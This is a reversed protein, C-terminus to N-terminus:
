NAAKADAYPLTITFETRGPVSECELKGKHQDIITQAIALGLGNGKEKTTVMPYFVTEMIEPEIGPGDDIISIRCALRCRVGHINEKFVIRTKFTICGGKDSLAECANKAINLIVQQMQSPDAFIEPLSPDYDTKIVVGSSTALTVLKRVSELTEHINIKQYVTPQQPGLLRDVLGKLRDAQKIIIDTYEQMEPPLDQKLLQAAGRIGGLPNKIEHALNRILGRSATQQAHQYVEDFIKKQRGVTRIELISYRRNGDDIREASIDVLKDIGNVRLLIERETIGPEDPSLKQIWSLDRDGGAYLETLSKGLCRRVGTAFFQQAANNLYRVCCKEDIVVIATLLNDLLSLALDNRRISM